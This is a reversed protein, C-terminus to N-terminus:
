FMSIVNKYEFTQVKLVFTMYILVYIDVSNWDYYPDPRGRVIYLVLFRYEM